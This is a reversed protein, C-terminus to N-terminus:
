WGPGGNFWVVTPAVEESSDVDAEDADAMALIYHLQCEPGNKKTNCGDSADLYGSYHPTPPVGFGPYSKVEDAAPAATTVATFFLVTVAVASLILSQLVKM